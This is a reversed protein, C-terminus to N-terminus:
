CRCSLTLPGPRPSRLWRVWMGLWLAIIMASANAPSVEDNMNVRTTGMWASSGTSSFAERASLAHTIVEVRSAAAIMAGIEPRRPSMYPLRRMTSTRSPAITTPETRAALVLSSESTTMPRVRCPAILPTMGSPMAMMRSTSCGFRTSVAIAMLLAVMPTPPEIPMGSLANTVWSPSQCRSNQSEAASPASHKARTAIKM